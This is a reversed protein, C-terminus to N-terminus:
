EGSAGSAEVYVRLITVDDNKLAKSDRLQTLWACFREDERRRLDRLVDWPHEGAERQAFFWRSIADSMLYFTDNAAWTGRIRQPEFADGSNSSLLAPRDNFSSSDSLPFASLVRGERMQILCSDGIAYASWTGEAESPGGGLDLTVLAAFAGSRFKADAYWPHPKQLRADVVGRWRDRVQALAGPALDDLRGRAFANVLLHAWILSYSAETAGDAVACRFRPRAADYTRSPCAADEYESPKNGAKPAAFADARIFM